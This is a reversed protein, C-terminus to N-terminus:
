KIERIIRAPVGAAIVNPPIDKSVLTGAGIISGDGIKRGPMIIAASGIVCNAGISVGGSITIGSFLTTYDGIITDHGVRTGGSMFVFDGLEVNVSISAGTTSIICGEGWEVYDSVIAESSIVVPFKINENKKIRSILNRRVLPENVITVAINGSFNKLYDFGGLVPIDNVIKGQLNETDDIFGAVKWATEPNKDLSLAFALSRGAGGAGYILIGRSM